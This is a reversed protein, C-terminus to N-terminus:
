ESSKENEESAIDRKGEEVVYGCQGQADADGSVTPTATVSAPLGAAEGAPRAALGRQLTFDMARDIPIRVVGSRQDIWAYSTVERQQGACYDRLEQHPLAQLRPSPPLVRDTEKVLPSTTPGLPQTNTFYKFTWRMGVLTVALVVAMWFAFQLLGSISADRTEYGLGRDVPANSPKKTAM